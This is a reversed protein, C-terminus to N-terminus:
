VLCTFLIYSNWNLSSHTFCCCWLLRIGDYQSVSFISLSVRRIVIGQQDGHKFIEGGDL